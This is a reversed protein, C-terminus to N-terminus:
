LLFAFWASAVVLLIFSGLCVAFFLLFYLLFVILRWCLVCAQIAFYGLAPLEMADVWVFAHPVFCEFSVPEFGDTILELHDELGAM